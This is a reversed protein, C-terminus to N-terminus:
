ATQEQREALLPPKRTLRKLNQEYQAILDAKPLNRRSGIPRIRVGCAKYISAKRLDGVKWRKWDVSECVIDQQVIAQSVAKAQPIVEKPFTKQPIALRKVAITKNTAQSTIAKEKAPASDQSAKNGAIAKPQTRSAVKLPQEQLEVSQEQLLKTKVSKGLSTEVPEITITIGPQPTTVGTVGVTKAKREKSRLVYLVFACALWIESGYILSAIAINLADDILKITM